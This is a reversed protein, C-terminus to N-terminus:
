LIKPLSKIIGLSPVEFRHPWVTANGEELIICDTMHTDQHENLTKVTTYFHQFNMPARRLSTEKIMTTVGLPAQTARTPSGSHRQPLQVEKRRTQSIGEM